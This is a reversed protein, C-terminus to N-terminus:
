ETQADLNHLRDWGNTAKAYVELMEAFAGQTCPGLLFGHSLSATFHGAGDGTLNQEAPTPGGPVIPVTSAGVEGLSTFLVNAGRRVWHYFRARNEPHVAYFSLGVTDPPKFQLFGCNPNAGLGGATPADITATCSRNDIYLGFEFGGSVLGEAATVVHSDIGALDKLIFEFAAPAPEVKVGTEDYVELRFRHLGTDLKGSDVIASYIEGAYDGGPWERHHGALPPPDHPRFQYLLMSNVGKPGLFYVPFSPPKLPTGLDYDVYTKYIGLAAPTALDVFDSAGPKKVLWRYYHIQSTPISAAHGVRFGLVAGWPADLAVLDFNHDVLGTAKINQVPIAGVAYPMVWKLVGAPPDVPISPACVRAQPDTTEIIVETGCAYNWHVHCRVGPNYLWHWSGDICQGASFYLDPHDGACPYWITTNFYGDEDTCVCKLLHKDLYSMLEHIACFIYVYKKWAVALASRIQVASAAYVIAELEPSFQPSGSLLESAGPENAQVETAFEAGITGASLATFAPEPAVGRFLSTEPPPPPWPRRVIPPVALTKPPIPRHKVLEILDDRVRYIVDDPIKALVYPFEDVEWIQVCAHCVGWTATSGDPMKVRQVLRGTVQRGCQLWKMWDARAVASETIGSTAGPKVKLEVGGRRKLIEHLSASPLLGAKDLVPPMWQPLGATIASEEPITPAVMVRLRRSAFEGPPLKIIISPTAGRALPESALLRDAEDFVYVAADPLSEDGLQDIRVRVELKQASPKEAPTKM